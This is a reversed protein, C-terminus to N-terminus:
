ILSWVHRFLALTLAGALIYIITAILGRLSLRSIGCVGHGSTCGNAIRTGLGVLLGAAVIVATNPTLHTDPAEAVTLWMVLPVLVVGAIFALREAANNRGSGDILGGLIGSAGMIRGNGLLYVAGGTGILVGGILGWIWDINM